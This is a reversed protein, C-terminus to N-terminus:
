KSVVGRLGGNILSAVHALIRPLALGAPSALYRPEWHPDFKEKYQRLGRFNYFHEGQRFVLGGIRSWVPALARVDFGSLPAMGLNFSAYGQAKGWLMLELFLYEMVSRPADPSFRMLDVSLEEMGGSTWINAFAVIRGDVRVVAVPFNVLYEPSFFGLSFGKERTRKQALWADSVARLEGLYDHVEDPPVVELSAGAKEAERIIRRQSKARGGDLTFTTLPVRAEEGLKLLTLGLDIYMPLYERGAQYFVPWAGHRDAAEKFQWALERFEAPDGVPDGIAVWSRKMVSYQIFSRGSESFLLSKDGSLALNAASVRASGAIVKARALEEATPYARSAPAPRLLRVAAFCIGMLAIGVSARLFRPADATAAFRWWLSTSYDLHRYSVFGLWFTGMVALAIAVIWGPAFPEAFLAARRYFHRRAPLLAALVISLAVAEEWDFGKLLSALMGIVLMAVTLHFAADLRRRIGNALLLLAFGVLSAVFHSLEMVGLPLFADLWRMRSHMSPTSGSVLLIGGSVFTVTSLWLPAAAAALRGASRFMRAAKGRRAMIEYTAFSLTAAGLPILYYIVRYALLSAM